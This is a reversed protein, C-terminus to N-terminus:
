KELEQNIRIDHKTQSIAEKFADVNFPKFFNRCYTEAKKFEYSENLNNNKEFRMVKKFEEVSAVSIRWYKLEYLPDVTLEKPLELYIPKIGALVAQIVATTGRYLAWRCRSLDEDFDSCSLVINKPLKRFKLNRWILSNFNIIPHLRWVFQIEPCLYACALSFNLLLHCESYIGEPLVLCSAKDLNKPQITM